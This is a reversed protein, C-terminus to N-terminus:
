SKKKWLFVNKVGKVYKLVESLVFLLASGIIPYIWYQLPFPTIHLFTQLPTIYFVFFIAFGLVTSLLVWPNKAAHWDKSFLPTDHRVSFIIAFEMAVMTVLVLTQAAPHTLTRLALFFVLFEFVAAAVGLILVFHWQGDLFGESVPRPKKRMINPEAEEAALALAPFSDTVLNVFLIHIPALPPPFGCIVAGAVVIVENLNTRMLFSISKKINAFIRRGERIGQVITAYRDDMLVLDSAERAVSTGNKGM